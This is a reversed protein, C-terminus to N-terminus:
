CLRCTLKVMNRPPPAAYADWCWIFIPKHRPDRVSVNWFLHRDTGPIYDTWSRVVKGERVISWTQRERGWRRQRPLFHAAMDELGAETLAAAIETGRGNNKPDSLTTNLDGAVLMAFSEIMM